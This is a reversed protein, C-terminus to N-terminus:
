EAAADELVSTTVASIIPTSCSGGARENVITAAVNRLSSKVCAAFHAPSGAVVMLSVCIPHGRHSRLALMCCVCVSLSVRVCRFANQVLIFIVAHIADLFHSIQYFYVMFSQSLPTLACMLFCVCVCVRHLWPKFTKKCSVM